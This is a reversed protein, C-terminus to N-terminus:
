FVVRARCSTKDDKRIEFRFDDTQIEHQYIEVSEGFLMENMYNIEFRKVQKERYNELSFCDCIWQIYYISNVHGNIDIHSYKVKFDDIVESTVSALKIPKDILGVEDSTFKQLGEIFKLDKSSRTEMDLMVWISCANGIIENQENRICFNRKTSIRSVEEVWTEVQINDYQEPFHEMEIALRLLVWSCHQENLRRLGVNNDDANFGATTILINGLSALTVRFQFDVDQPHIQFSYSGKKLTM